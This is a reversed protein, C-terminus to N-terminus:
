EELLGKADFYETWDGSKKAKEMLSDISVAQPAVGKGAGEVSTPKAKVVKAQPKANLRNFLKNVRIFERAAMDGQEPATRARFEDLTYDLEKVAFEELAPLKQNFDPIERTVISLVKQVSSQQNLQKTADAVVANAGRQRLEDKRDALEDIRDANEFRDETRLRRIEATLDSMVGKPDRDYAEELTKPPTQSKQSDVDNRIGQVTEELLQRKKREDELAALPVMKPEVVVEEVEEEVAEEVEATPETEEEVTETEVAEVEEVEQIEQEESM